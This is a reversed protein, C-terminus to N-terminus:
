SRGSWMKTRWKHKYRKARKRSAQKLVLFNRLCYAFVCTRAMGKLPILFTVFEKHMPYMENRAMEIRSADGTELIKELTERYYSNIYM